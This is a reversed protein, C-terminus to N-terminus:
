NSTYLLCITVNGAGVENVTLTFYVIPAFHATVSTDGNITVELPNSTSTVSGTWGVFFYGDDPTATVTVLEGNGYLPKQPTWNVSGNGSSTATFTYQAASFNAM